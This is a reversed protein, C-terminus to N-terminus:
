RSGIPLAGNWDDNSPTYYFTYYHSNTELVDELTTKSGDCGFGYVVQGSPYYRYLSVRGQELIDMVSCLYPKLEAASRGSLPVMCDGKFRGLACQLGGTFAFVTKRGPTAEFSAGFQQM